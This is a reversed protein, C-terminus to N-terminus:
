EYQKTKDLSYKKNSITEVLEMLDSDLKDWEENTLCDQCKWVAPLTGVENMRFLTTEHGGKGCSICGMNNSEM